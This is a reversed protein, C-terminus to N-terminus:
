RKTTTPQGLYTKGCLLVFTMSGKLKPWNGTDQHYASEVVLQLDQWQQRDKGARRIEFFVHYPGSPDEMLISYCWNREAATEWVKIKPSEALGRILAPISHSLRYRTPCYTRQRESGVDIIPEGAPHISSDYGRSFCHNSFTVHVRLKKKVLQSELEFTFPELHLLDVSEGKIILPPFYSDAV